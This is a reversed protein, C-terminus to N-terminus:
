EFPEPLSFFEAQERFLSEVEDDVWQKIITDELIEDENMDWLRRLIEKICVKFVWHMGKLRYIEYNEWVILRRLKQEIYVSINNRAEDISKLEEGDLLEDDFLESITGRGKRIVVSDIRQTHTDFLVQAQCKEWFQQTSENHKKIAEEIIDLRHFWSFSENCWDWWMIGWEALIKLNTTTDSKFTEDDEHSDSRTAHIFMMREAKNTFIKRRIDTFFWKFLDHIYIVAKENLNPRSEAYWSNYIGKFFEEDFVDVPLEINWIWKSSFYSEMSWPWNSVMDQLERHFWELDKVVKKQKSKMLNFENEPFTNLETKAQELKSSIDTLRHAFFILIKSKDLWLLILIIYLESWWILDIDDWSFIESSFITGNEVDIVDKSPNDDFRLSQLITYIQNMDYEAGEKLEWKGIAYDTNQTYLKERMQLQVIQSIIWIAKIVHANNRLEKKIWQSIIDSINFYYKDGVSVHIFPTNWEPVKSRKLESVKKGNWPWKDLFTHFRWFTSPLCSLKDRIRKVSWEKAGLSKEGSRDRDVLWDLALNPIANRTAILGSVTKKYTNRLRATKEHIKSADVWSVLKMKEIM